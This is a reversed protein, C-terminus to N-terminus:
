EDVELEALRRAVMRRRTKHKMGRKDMLDLMAQLVETCEELAVSSRCDDVSTHVLNAARREIMTMSM